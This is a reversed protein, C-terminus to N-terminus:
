KADEAIPKLFLEAEAQRRRVLGPLERGAMKTYILFKSKVWAEDNWRDPTDCLETMSPFLSSGYFNSGLQYAFSYLAARQNDNMSGWTPINELQPRFRENLLWLLYERAQALTIKDGAKVQRGDPYTSIGFGIVYIGVPDRRAEAIFGEFKAILDLAVEPVEPAYPIEPINISVVSTLRGREIIAERKQKLLVLEKQIAKIEAVKQLLAQRDASASVTGPSLSNKLEDIELQLRTLELDKDFIQQDLEAQNKAAESIVTLYDNWRDRSKPSHAINALYEVYNRRKVLDREEAVKDSFRELYDTEEKLRQIEIQQNQIQGNIIAPILTVVVGATVIRLADILKKNAVEKRKIGLEIKKLELAARSLKEKEEKDDKEKERAEEEKDM